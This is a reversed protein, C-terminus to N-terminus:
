GRPRSGWRRDNLYETRRKRARADEWDEIQQRARSRKSRRSRFRGEANRDHRTHILGFELDVDDDDFDLEDRESM